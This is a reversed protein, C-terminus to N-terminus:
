NPPQTDASNTPQATARFPNRVVSPLPQKAKITPARVVIKTDTIEVIQSRDIIRNTINFGHLLSPRVHLKIVFFTNTEIAYTEVKGIKKGKDDVVEKDDLKFKLATVQQLRVLDEPSMINEDSDILLGLNSVERIDNTHLVAPTHSLRPGKCYFAVIHLQRPDIIASDIAALVGGTQLSVIPSDFLQEKLILM